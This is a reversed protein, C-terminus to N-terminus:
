RKPRGRDIPTVTAGPAVVSIWRLGFYGKDGTKSRTTVFGRKLLSKSFRVSSGVFEENEEAWAKWSAFLTSFLMFSNKDEVFCEAIWSGMTDEGTVYEDTAKTVITPPALGQKQWDLCGEIMAALIGSWEMKLKGLLKQDVEELPITVEFPLLNLRRRIATDVSRLGPKNNGGIMLKFQPMFTFFDQRMFRATLQEGGTLEKIRAENWNRGEDTETATVLRAGQLRAIETPHADHNKMTFTEIPATIHYDGMINGVTSMLTTKGNRGEGYNFFLAHEHTEGTLAYGCVRMIYARLRPDPAIKKLFADWVPTACKADPTAATIKTIYDEPRHERLKGTKLDVTGGPTNLLWPDLDWQDATASLRRDEQALSVVSSRTKASAIRKADTKKAAKAAARCVDRSLTFAKRTEDVRWRKADQVFWKNWAAVFRVKNAFKTGFVLAIEEESFKPATDEAEEHLQLEVIVKEPEGQPEDRWTPDAEDAMYFLTGATIQSPPSCDFLKWKADLRKDDHKGSKASWGRYLERGEDSGDTSAYIAMGMKNWQEWDVDDNPIVALAKELDETEPPPRNSPVAVAPRPEEMLKKALWGPLPAIPTGWSLWAYALGDPRVSPPAVVMGGDGKVDVGPTLKSATSGVRGGPHKFYWHVSGSPSRAMLTEPLKGYEEELRQLGALGDVDHGEVTDAEVVVIGNVAGTPVGVAKPWRKFDRTIEALDKTMGWTRGGSHVAAKHSSKMGKALRAPFVHWGFRSAYILAAEISTHPEPTSPSRRPKRASNEQQVEHSVSRSKAGANVTDPSKRKTM